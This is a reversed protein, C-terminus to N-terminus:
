VAQAAVAEHDGRDVNAMSQRCRESIAGHSPEGSSFRCSSTRIVPSSTRIQPLSSGAVDPQELLSAAVQSEFM